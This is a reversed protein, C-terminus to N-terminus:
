PRRCCTGEPARALCHAGFLWVVKFFGKGKDVDFVVGLIEQTATVVRLTPVLINRFNRSPLWKARYDREIIVLPMLEGRHAIQDPAVDSMLAMGM